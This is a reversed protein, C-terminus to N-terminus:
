RYLGFFSLFISPKKLVEMSVCKDSLSVVWSEMYYPPIKNLPFMHRIISNRVKENMYQPFFTEANDLAEQAHVFGHKELIKTKGKGQWPKDYFDHLLGGIAASEYDLGLKRAVYYSRLSVALSHEFVTITGHHQYQKRKQFEEHELIPAIIKYFEEEISLISSDKKIALSLIVTLEKVM